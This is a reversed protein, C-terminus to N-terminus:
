KEVEFQKIWKRWEKYNKKYEDVNWVFLIKEFYDDIPMSTMKETDIKITEILKDGNNGNVVKPIYTETLTSTYGEFHPFNVRRGLEFYYHNCKYIFVTQFRKGDTYHNVSM